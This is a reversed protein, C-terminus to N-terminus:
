HKEDPEIEKNELDELIELDANKLDHEDPFNEEDEGSHKFIHVNFGSHEKSSTQM